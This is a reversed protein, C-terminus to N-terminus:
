HRVCVCVCVCVCELLAAVADFVRGGVVLLGSCTLLIVYPPLKGFLTRHLSVSKRGCIEHLCPRLTRSVIGLSTEVAM